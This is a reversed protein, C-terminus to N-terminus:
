VAGNKGSLNGQWIWPIIRDLKEMTVPEHCMERGINGPPPRLMMSFNIILHEHTTTAGVQSPDITGLVTQVEGKRTPSM